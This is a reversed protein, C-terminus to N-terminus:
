QLCPVRIDRKSEERRGTDWEWAYASQQMARFYMKTSPPETPTPHRIDVYRSQKDGLSIVKLLEREQGSSCSYM